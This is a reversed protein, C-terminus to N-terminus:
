DTPRTATSRAGAPPSFGGVASSAMGQGFEMHYAPLGHLAIDIGELELERDLRLGWSGRISRVGFMLALGLIGVVVICSLSGIAQAVLQDIGGGYFLGKIPSPTTPGPRRPSATSAPRSCASALTGWIWVRRPGPVAGVPDDIRLHELLDTAFPM